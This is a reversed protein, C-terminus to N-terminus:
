GGAPPQWLEIKNGDPDYIWAFRGYEADQREPDIRVGEAALAALVADLDDVRFNCMFPAGGPGFYKTDQPFFSFLTMGKKQPDAADRWEFSWAGYSEEFPIGLHKGYWQMAAKPDASRMFFGGLGTVRKM